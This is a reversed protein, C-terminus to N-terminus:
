SVAPGLSSRRWDEARWVLEARLPNREVYGLVTRLNADAEIPFAKFRGQWVHGMTRDHRRDRRAHAISLWPMWRSLDDEAHPRLVLHPLFLSADKM